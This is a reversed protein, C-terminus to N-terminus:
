KELGINGELRLNTRLLRSFARRLALLTWTNNATKANAINFSNDDANKERGWTVANNVIQNNPTTNKTEVSADPFKCAECFVSFLNQIPIAEM